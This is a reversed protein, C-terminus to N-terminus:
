LLIIRVKSKGIYYDQNIDGNLGVKGQPCYKKINSSTLQAQLVIDHNYFTVVYFDELDIYKRKILFDLIRKSYKM